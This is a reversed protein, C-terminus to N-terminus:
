QGGIFIVACIRGVLSFLCKQQLFPHWFICSFYVQGSQCGRAEGRPREVETLRPEEESVPTGREYWVGGDGLAVM